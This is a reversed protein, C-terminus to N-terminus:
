LVNYPYLLELNDLIKKTKEKENDEFSIKIFDYDYDIVEINYNELFKIIKLNRIKLEKKIIENFLINDNFIFTDLYSKSVLHNFLKNEKYKELLKLKLSKEIIQFKNKNINFVSNYEYCYDIEFVFGNEFFFLFEKISVLLSEGELNKFIRIKNNCKKIKISILLTNNFKLLHKEIDEISVLPKEFTYKKLEDFGLLRTNKIVSLNKESITKLVCENKRKNLVALSKNNHLEQILLNNKVENKKIIEDSIAKMLKEYSYTNLIMMKRKENTSDKLSKNIGELQTNRFGNYAQKLLENQLEFTKKLIIKINNPNNINLNKFGNYYFIENLHMSFYENSKINKYNFEKLDEKNINSFWITNKNLEELNKKLFPSKKIFFGEENSFGLLINNNEIILGTKINKM